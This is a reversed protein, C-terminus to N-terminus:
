RGTPWTRLSGFDDGVGSVFALGWIVLGGACVMVVGGLLLLVGLLRQLRRDQHLAACTPDAPDYLVIVPDGCRLAEFAPGARVATEVAAGAATTFRAVPRQAATPGVETVVGPSRLARREFRSHALMRIGAVLTAITVLPFSLVILSLM